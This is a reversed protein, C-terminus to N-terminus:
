TTLLQGQLGDLAMNTLTRFSIDGRHCEPKRQRQSAWLRDRWGEAM